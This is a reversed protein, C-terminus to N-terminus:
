AVRDSSFAEGVQQYVTEMRDKYKPSFHFPILRKVEAKRGLLGAQETTLHYKEAARDADERLFPSEIFLSDSGQALAVIKRANEEHYVVDVIYTVKQGPVTKLIEEKLRGLPHWREHTEQGAKWWVRFPRTEPEGRLVATKLEKLWPGVPLDMEELRSKLVNLHVKEELTFALSPIRHDLIATRVRFNEADLLIQGSVSREKEDERLFARQCRFVATRLTEERIESVKLVLDNEYSGVLNWTYASLKHEVREIFGPPGFLRITMERGLCLRLMRDFGNFHDMHTHSVFIDTVKLIKRPSLASLDGLDFLLARKEFLFEVYLGPDGFPDNILRPHFIPKM